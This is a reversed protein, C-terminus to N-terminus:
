PKASSSYYGALAQPTAGLTWRLNVMAMRWYTRVVGRERFRRASTTVTTEALALRGINRLSQCLLYEEMLPVEPVGGISDLITRPIFLAQDGYAFQLAAM